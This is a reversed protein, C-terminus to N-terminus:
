ESVAVCVQGTGSVVWRASAGYQMQIDNEDSDIGISVKKVERVLISPMQGVPRVFCRQKTKIVDSYM